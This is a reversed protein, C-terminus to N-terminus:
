NEIPQHFKDRLAEYKRLFYDNKMHEMVSAVRQGWRKETFNEENEDMSYRKSMYVKEQLTQIVDHIDHHLHISPHQLEPVCINAGSHIRPDLHMIKTGPQVRNGIYAFSPRHPMNKPIIQDAIAILRAVPMDPFGDNVVLVLHCLQLLMSLMRIDDCESVMMDRKQVNSLLPSTDLFVIRDQSIFMDITNGEYVVGSTPFVGQEQLFTVTSTDPAISLFDPSAIINMLTSKGSNKTGVVAVCLFDCNETDLFDFIKQNITFHPHMMRHCGKMAPPPAPGDNVVKNQIIVPGVLPAAEKNASKTLIKPQIPERITRSPRQSDDKKLIIPHSHKNSM